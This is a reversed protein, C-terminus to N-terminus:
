VSDLRPRSYAVPGRRARAAAMAYHKSIFRRVARWAAARKVDGRQEARLAWREAILAADVTRTALLKKATCEVDIKPGFKLPGPRLPM